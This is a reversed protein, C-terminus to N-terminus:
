VVVILASKDSNILIEYLRRRGTGRTTGPDFRPPVINGTALDSRIGFRNLPRNADSVGVRDRAATDAAAASDDRTIVITNAISASTLICCVTREIAGTDANATRLRKLKKRIVLGPKILAKDFLSFPM